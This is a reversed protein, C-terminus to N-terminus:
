KWSVMGCHGLIYNLCCFKWRCFVLLLTMNSLDVCRIIHAADLFRTSCSYTYRYFVLVEVLLCPVFLFETPL